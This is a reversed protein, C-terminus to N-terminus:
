GRAPLDGRSGAGAEPAHDYEASIDKNTYDKLAATAALSVVACFAIFVPLRM